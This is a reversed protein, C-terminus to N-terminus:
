IKTKFVFVLFLLSVINSCAYATVAANLGIYNILLFTLLPFLVGSLLENMIFYKTLMQASMAYAYFWIAIKFTDGLFQMLFLSDMAGFTKAFLVHIIIHRLFFLITYGVAAIPVVMKIHEWIFKHLLAKDKIEAAKPFYYVALSMVLISLMSFSFRYMADWIGASALNLHNIIISRVLFLSIPGVGGSIIAMFIYALYGKGAAKDWGGTFYMLKLWPKNRVMFLTLLLVFSQVIVVAVLAGAIKFYYVLVLTLILGFITNAISISVYSKFDKFGNIIGFLMTNLNYFFLSVGLITVVYYYSPSYFIFQSLSKSFLVLIAGILFSLCLVITTGTSIHRRLDKPSNEFEVVFKTVGSSIGPSSFAMIFSSFNNLQGLLALGPPGIVVAIFKVSIFGTVTRVALSVSNLSSVKIFDSRFTKKIFDIVKKLIM